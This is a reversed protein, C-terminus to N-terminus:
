QSRESSFGLMLEKPPTEGIAICWAKISKCRACAKLLEGSYLAERQCLCARNTLAQRMAQGAALQLDNM